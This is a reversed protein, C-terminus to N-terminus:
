DAPTSTRIMSSLRYRWGALGHVNDLNTYAAAQLYGAFMTGLPSAIFFLSVRRTIESPKYWSGIIYIVGTFSCSECLGIFFRMAYITELNQAWACGFTFLGWGIELSPLVINIRTRTLLYCLPIMSTCYSVWFVATIYNLDNGTLHLDERM